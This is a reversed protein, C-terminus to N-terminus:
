RSIFIKDRNKVRFELLLYSFDHFLPSIAGLSKKKHRPFATSRTQPMEQTEESINKLILSM